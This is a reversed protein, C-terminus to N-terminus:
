GFSVRMLEIVPQELNEEVAILEAFFEAAVQYGVEPVISLLYCELDISRSCNCNASGAEPTGITPEFAQLNSVVRSLVLILEMTSFRTWDIKM